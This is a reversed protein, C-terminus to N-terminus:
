RFKTRVTLALSIPPLETLFDNGLYPYDNVVNSSLETNGPGTPISRSQKFVATSAFLCRDLLNFKLGSEYLRTEQRLEAVDGSGWTAVGGDNSVPNTYEANNNYTLYASGWSEYQYVLSIFDLEVLHLLV